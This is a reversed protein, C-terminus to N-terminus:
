ILHLRPEGLERLTPIVQPYFVSLPNSASYGEAGTVLPNPNSGGDGSSALMTIGAVVLQACAQSGAQLASPSDGVEPGGASYSVVTAVGDNLIQTCGALISAGDLSPIAYLRIAAGPAIGSAWEVDLTAESANTAQNSSSPGGAVDVFTYNSLSQSSGITQWFTSLDSQLPVAAMMIGITQGTGNIPKGNADNSIPADYAALIDAPTANGGAETGAAEQHGAAHMLIHPQLGIVGLIPDAFEIPLSPTTIASTFEGDANAVRAFTRRFGKFYQIDEWRLFTPITEILWHRRSVRVRFGFPRENTILLSRYTDRRWRQM